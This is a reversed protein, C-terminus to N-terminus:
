QPCVCPVPQKAYALWFWLAQPSIPHFHLEFSEMFHQIDSFGFFYCLILSHAVHADAIYGEFLSRFASLVCSSHLHLPYSLYPAVHGGAIYVEFLSGLDSLVCSSLLCLPYTLPHPIHTYTIYVEFLSGFASLVCSGFLSSTHSLRSCPHWSHVSWVLDQFYIAPQQRFYTLWFWKYSFRRHKKQGLKWGLKLTSNLVGSHKIVWKIIICAAKVIMFAAAKM